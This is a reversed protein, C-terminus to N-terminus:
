IQLWFFSANNFVTREYCEKDRSISVIQGGVLRREGRLAGCPLIHSSPINNDTALTSAIQPPPPPLLSLLAGGLDGESAQGGM